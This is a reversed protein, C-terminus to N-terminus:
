EDSAELEKEARALFEPGTEGPPAGLREAADYITSTEALLEDTKNMHDVVKGLRQALDIMRALPSGKPAKTKTQKSM